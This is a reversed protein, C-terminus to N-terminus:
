CGNLLSIKRNWWEQADYRCPKLLRPQFNNNECVKLIYERLLPLQFFFAIHRKAFWSRTFRSSPAKWSSPPFTADDPFRVHTGCTHGALTADCGGCDVGIKWDDICYMCIQPLLANSNMFLRVPQGYWWSLGEKLENSLQVVKLSIGTETFSESVVDDEFTAQTGQFVEFVDPM